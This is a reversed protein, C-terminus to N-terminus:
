FRVTVKLRLAEAFLERRLLKLSESALGGTALLTEAATDLSLAKRDAEEDAPPFVLLLPRDVKPVEMLTSRRAAVQFILYFDYRHMKTAM